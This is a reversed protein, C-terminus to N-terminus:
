GRRVRQAIKDAKWAMEREDSARSMAALEDHLRKATREEM